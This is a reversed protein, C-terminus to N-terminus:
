TRERTQKGCRDPDSTEQLTSSGFCDVAHMGMLMGDDHIPVPGPRAATLVGWFREQKKNNNTDGKSGALQQQVPTKYTKGGTCTGDTCAM